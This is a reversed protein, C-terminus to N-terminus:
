EHHFVKHLMKMFDIISSVVLMAGSLNKIFGEDGDRAGYKGKVQYQEYLADPNSCSCFYQGKLLYYDIVAGGPLCQKIHITM